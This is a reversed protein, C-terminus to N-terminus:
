EGPDLDARFPFASLTQNLKGTLVITSPEKNSAGTALLDPLVSMLVNSAHYTNWEGNRRAKLFYLQMPVLANRLISDRRVIRYAISNVLLENSHWSLAPKSDSFYL